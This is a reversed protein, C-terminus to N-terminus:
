LRAFGASSSEPSIEDGCGRPVVGGGPGPARRATSFEMRRGGPAAQARSAAAPASPLAATVRRAERTRGVDTCRPGNCRDRLLLGRGCRTPSRPPSPAGGGPARAGTRSLVGEEAGVKGMQAVQGAQFRNVAGRGLKERPSQLESHSSRGLDVWRSGPRGKLTSPVQLPFRQTLLPM